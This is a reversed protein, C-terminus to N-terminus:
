GGVGLENLEWCYKVYLEAEFGEVVSRFLGSGGAGSLVECSDSRSDINSLSLAPFVGSGGEGEVDTRRFTGGAGGIELRCLWCTVSVFTILSVPLSEGFTSSSPSGYRLSSLRVRRFLIATPSSPDLPPFAGGGGGGDRFTPLTLLGWVSNCCFWRTEDEVTLRGGVGGGALFLERLVLPPLGADTRLKSIVVLLRM